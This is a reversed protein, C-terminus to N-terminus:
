GFYCKEFSIREKSEKKEWKHETKFIRKSTYEEEKNIFAYLSTSDFNFYM